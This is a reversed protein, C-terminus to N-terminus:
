YCVSGLMDEIMQDHLDKFETRSMSEKLDTSREWTDRLEPDDWSVLTVHVLKDSEHKWWEGVFSAIELPESSTNGDETRYATVMNIANTNM